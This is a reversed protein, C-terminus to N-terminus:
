NVIGNYEIKKYREFSFLSDRKYVFTYEGNDNFIVDYKGSLFPVGNNERIEYEVYCKMTIFDNYDKYYLFSELLAFYGVLFIFDIMFKYMSNIVGGVGCFLFLSFYIKRSECSLFVFQTIRFGCFECDNFKRDTLINAIFRM